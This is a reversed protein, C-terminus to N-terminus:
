TKLGSNRGQHSLYRELYSTWLFFGGVLFFVLIIKYFKAKSSLTLALIGLVLTTLWYFVAIKKKGWGLRLLRHHLHFADGWVPSRGQTIRRIIAYFADALPIGLVMVVTGVKTLALISLVALIFGAISGGGYGPMIKQPYFNFALFGLYAGATILALIVVPWQTVDGTFRLSFVGITLVAIVMIGPLQGDIGKSWNVFNMLGLIWFFAFIDALLWIHRIKGFFNIALQPQDLPIVGGFPNTIYPIGIGASVVALVALIGFGLRLYPNLDYIDDFVGVVMLIALGAIIGILHKDLPLFFLATLTIALMVPIGGGRPVPYQHVVKPHKKNEPNDLWNNKKYFFIVLPTSFLAIAMSVAFALFLTLNDM